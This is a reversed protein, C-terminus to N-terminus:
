TRRTYVGDVGGNSSTDCARGPQSATAGPGARRRAALFFVMPGPRTSLEDVTKTFKSLEILHIELDDTWLVGRKEERLRFILHHDPIDPYVAQNVFCISITPRLTQYHEGERLQRPHYKSWYFLVRKSFFWPVLWQMEVHFQRNGQDRALIDAITQKDLPSDKVSYPQELNLGTIGGGPHMVANLLDILVLAEEESGFVRKFAIDVTPDIDLKM